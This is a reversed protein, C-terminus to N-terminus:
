NNKALLSIQLELRKIERLLSNKDMQMWHWLKLMGVVMMGMGFGAGWLLMERINQANYFQVFCYVSIGFMIFMIIGSLIAFWKMKGQFNAAALDFLGQEEIRNLIQADEESLAKKLLDDINDQNKM